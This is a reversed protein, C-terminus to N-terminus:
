STRIRVSPSSMSISTSLSSSECVASAECNYCYATLLLWSRFFGSLPKKIKGQIKRPHLNQPRRHLSRNGPHNRSPPHYKVYYVFYRVANAHDAERRYINGIVYYAHPDAPSYKIAQRLIEKAKDPQGLVETLSGAQLLIISKIRAPLTGPKKAKWVIEYFGIFFLLLVSVALFMYIYQFGTKKKKEVGGLSELSIIADRFQDSFLNAEQINSLEFNAGKVQADYFTSELLNSNEFHCGTCDANTFDAEVLCAGQFVSGILSANRLNAGTMNARNFLSGQLRAKELNSNVFKAMRATGKIFVADRLDAGSLDAGDLNAKFLNYGRLDAGSLDPKIKYNAARWDNWHQISSTLIAYHEQNM